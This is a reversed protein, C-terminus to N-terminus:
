VGFLPTTDEEEESEGAVMDQTIPQDGDMDLENRFERQLLETLRITRESAVLPNRAFGPKFCETFCNFLSWLTRYQFCAHKPSEYEGLVRPIMTAPMVDAKLAKCLIDHVRSQEIFVETMNEYFKQQRNKFRDFKGLAQRVLVPLDKLINKTHKRAISVEGSFALNDCVFVQSGFCIAASLTKDMSNRVGLSFGYGMDENDNDLLSYIGFMQLGDRQLGFQRSSTAIILGMENIARDVEDLLVGHPIPVWTETSQPCLVSRVQAENAPGTASLKAPM